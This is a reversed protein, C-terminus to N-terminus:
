GLCFPGMLTHRGSTNYAHDLHASSIWVDTSPRIFSHVGMLWPPSGFAVITAAMWCKSRVTANSLAGHENTNINIVTASMM